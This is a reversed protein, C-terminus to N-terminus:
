SRLSAALQELTGPAALHMGQGFSCGRALVWAVQAGHEIGEALTQLGLQKAIVLLSEFLAADTADLPVGQVFSRDVKVVDLPLCKLCSLTSYGTGFDDLAIRLGLERIQELSHASQEVNAMAASETVEIGFHSALGPRRAFATRLNELLMPDNLQSASVNVYCRFNPPLPSISALDSTAREIVWRTISAILGAQEAWPIFEAPQVIGRQPHTWRILAEAGVIRRSALDFTPQYMLNFQNEELAEIVDRRLAADPNLRPTDDRYHTIQSGGSRKAAALAVDAYQMLEEASQTDGPYRASGFSAHLKVTRTGDRDGTHFPEAFREVYRELRANVDAESVAGRIVIGFDDGSVRAVVDDGQRGALESAVEVLLEDGIVYGASHNIERFADIDCLAVAFPEGALVANRVALRFQTRNLLGTLSDHEIQYRIRERQVAAHLRHAFFSALAKVYCQDEDDFRGGAPETSAFMLTSSRTGTRFVTGIWSQWGAREAFPGITEVGSFDRWGTQDPRDLLRGTMTGALPLRMGPELPSSMGHAAVAEITVCEDEVHALFGVMPKNPSISATGLELMAQLQAACDIDTQEGVRWLCALRGAQTQSREEVQALRRRAALLEAVAASMVLMAAFSYLVRAAYWSLMFRAGGLLNLALDLTLALLMLALARNFPSVPRLAVVRGLAAATVLTTTFGTAVSRPGNFSGDSVIAPLRDAFGIAFTAIAAVIAVNLLSPVIWARQPSRSARKQSHLAAYVVAGAAVYAHWLLFLWAFTQTGAPLWPLGAHVFPMSLMALLAIIGSGAFLQGLVFLTPERSGVRQMSFLVIATTLDFAAAVLIFAPAFFADGPLPVRAFLAALGAGACLAVAPRLPLGFPRELATLM